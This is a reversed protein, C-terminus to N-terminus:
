NWSSDERLGEVIAEPFRGTAPGPDDGYRWPGLEPRTSGKLRKIEAMWVQSSERTVIHLLLCEKRDPSQSPVPPNGKDFEGKRFKLSWAECVFAVVKGKVERIKRAMGRALEDKSRENKFWASDIGAIYDNVEGSILLMAARDANVSTFKQRTEEIGGQVWEKIEEVTMVM